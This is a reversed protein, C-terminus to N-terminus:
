NETSLLKSKKTCLTNGDDDKVVNFTMLFILLILFYWESLSGTDEKVVECPVECTGDLLSMELCEARDKIVKMRLRISPDLWMEPSPVFYVLCTYLPGRTALNIAAILFYNESFYNKFFVCYFVWLNHM